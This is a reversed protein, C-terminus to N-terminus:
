EKNDASCEAMTPNFKCRVKRFLTLATTNYIGQNRLHIRSLRHKENWQEKIQADVQIWYKAPINQEFVNLVNFSHELQKQVYSRSHQGFSEPMKSSRIVLQMTSQHLPWNIIGGDPELGKNMELLEYAAAPAGTMDVLHNNFKQIANNLTSPVPILGTQEILYNTEPTNDLVTIKKGTLADPNSFAKDIVFGFLAGTPVIAAIEYDEQQMFKAAKPSSLTDLILKLHQYDPIAGIANLSGTFHNFNRARIGPLNVLDCYGSQFDELALRDSAYHKFELQVGWQLAQTQYDTMIQSMPGNQGIMDYLCMTRKTQTAISPTISSSAQVNLATTLLTALLSLLALSRFYGTDNLNIYFM